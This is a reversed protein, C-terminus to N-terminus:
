ADETKVKFQDTDTRDYWHGGWQKLPVKWRTGTILDTVHMFRGSERTSYAIREVGRTEAQTAQDPGFVGTKTMEFARLEEDAVKQATYVPVMAPSGSTYRPAVHYHEKAM